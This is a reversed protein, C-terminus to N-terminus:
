YMDLPFKQLPSLTERPIPSPHLRVAPGEAGSRTPIVFLLPDSLPSANGLALATTPATAVDILLGKQAFDFFTM